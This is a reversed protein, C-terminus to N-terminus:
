RRPVYGAKLSGFSVRRNSVTDVIQIVATDFYPLVRDPIVRVVRFRVETGAPGEVIWPYDYTGDFQLAETVGLVVYDGGDRSMEVQYVLPGCGDGVDWSINRTEGLSWVEPVDPLLGVVEIAGACHEGKADGASGLVSVISVAAIIIWRSM